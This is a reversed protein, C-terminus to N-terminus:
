VVSKRDLFPALDPLDLSLKAGALDGLRGGAGNVLALLPVGAAVTAQAAEVTRDVNGSMSIALVRDAARLQAAGLILDLAGIPRWDLGCRLAVARAAQAAFFGDGCGTVFLRGGAGPRLQRAGCEAFDAGRSALTRLVEPQRAIDRRMPPKPADAEAMAM